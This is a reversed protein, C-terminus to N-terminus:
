EEVIERGKVRSEHLLQEKEKRSIEAKEEDEKAKNISINIGNQRDDMIKNVPKILFRKLIFLLIIFNIITFIITSLSVNM